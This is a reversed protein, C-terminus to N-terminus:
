GPSNGAAAAPTVAGSSTTAPAARRRARAVVAKAADTATFLDLHDMEDKIVPALSLDSYTAATPDADIAKSLARYSWWLRATAWSKAAVEGWYKKYFSFHGEIPLGPRRDARLKLRLSGGELPHTGEVMISGYFWMIMYRLTSEKEIGSVRARRLITEIHAPSYYTAWARRYLEEWEPHSMQPHYTTVHAADYKNLDPDMWAGSLFLNKHDESGPLPTLCFFELLDVPLERQIIEIDRLISQPTDTPFGVIYGAYTLTGVARWAQLMQRYETIRNQRKKAHVLTQPNISELGIFVRTVGARAAKEIFRPIRHCLTDVQLVFKVDLREVERLHILRDFIAEWNQNRAFNDDTVFFHRIKQVVNARVIQEIDDASRYRSKRGQVNIITCFSCQFPCGLGGDFSTYGSATRRVLRAPLIPVPVGAISPLEPPAKYIPQLAGRYADLLLQELRGDEAEGVFLSVGCDLAEQLEPSLTPLMAICGSVHFGGICVPIGATIFQRALDMARPFQNSQVGVLGVLGRGGDRRMRAVFRSVKIRTNTEDYASIKLAVNPGLVNRDSCDRALGHLVALSNSPVASRLWQIVYGEDDYHSPKILIFHFATRRATTISNM